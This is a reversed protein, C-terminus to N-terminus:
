GDASVGKLIRDMANLYEDEIRPFVKLATGVITPRRSSRSKPPVRGWPVAAIAPASSGPARGWRERNEPDNRHAGGARLQVLRASASPRVKAGAGRGVTVPKPSLRSIITQGIRKNAQGMEKTLDKSGARNLARTLERVGEVRIGQDGLM